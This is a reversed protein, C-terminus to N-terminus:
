CCASPADPAASGAPTDAVGAWDALEDRAPYRGQSVLAGDRLIAPLSAEGGAELLAKIEPNAVFEAPEQGLNIRRVQTGQAKLWDLDAAFDVIHQDVRPGCVGTSCCMAPDYVTIQTM